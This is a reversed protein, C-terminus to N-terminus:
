TDYHEGNDGPSGPGSIRGSNMSSSVTGLHVSSSTGFGPGFPDAGTRGAPQFTLQKSASNKNNMRNNGGGQGGSPYSHSSTRSNNNTTTGAATSIEKDPNRVHLTLLVHSRSSLHKSLGLLALDEPLLEAAGNSNRQNARRRELVEEAGNSTSAAGTRLHVQLQDHELGSIISCQNQNFIM